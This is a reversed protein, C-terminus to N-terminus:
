PFPSASQKAQESVRMWGEDGERGREGERERNQVFPEDARARVRKKREAEGLLPPCVCTFCASQTYILRM